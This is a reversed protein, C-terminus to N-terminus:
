YQLDYRLFLTVDTDTNVICSFITRQRTIVSILPFLLELVIENCALSLPSIHASQSGSRLQSSLLCYCCQVSTLVAYVSQSGPVVVTLLTCCIASLM